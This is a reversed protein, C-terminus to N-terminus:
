RRVQAFEQRQKWDELTRLRVDLEGTPTPKPRADLWWRFAVLGCGCPIGFGVLAVLATVM